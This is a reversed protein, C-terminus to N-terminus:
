RQNCKQLRISLAPDVNFLPEIRLWPGANGDPPWLDKLPRRLWGIWSKRQLMFYMDAIADRHVLLHFLLPTSINYPLNGVVRLKPGGGCLATFDTQLCGRDARYAKSFRHAGCPRPSIV